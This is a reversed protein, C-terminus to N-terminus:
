QQPDVIIIDGEKFDPEMSDGEISLAFTFESIDIDTMIYEFSGDFAYIPNKEALAGAQVYSILTVKRSYVDALSMFP